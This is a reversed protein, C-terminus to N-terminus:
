FGLAKKMKAHIATNEYIGSFLEAGPGFAFVPVMTATHKDTTFGTVLSDLRSGPNIAFGGTEHDAAVIVLTEGDAEAFDLIKGIVKDFEIMESVIYNADNAHGGWDIQSGEIMLFFPKDSKSRLYNLAASSADIFYDRGQLLPLPEANATFFGFKKSNDIKVKQFDQAIFDSIVYGRENFKEILNRDDKRQDFYKKGGGVFFDVNSSLLDDAIEEMMKRDKQHAYFSAPTAHTISSTVVIGTYFGKEIAEEMITKVPNGNNDVGIANNYTKVGCSMATAGAASDTVLDDSSHTKHLGVHTCRELHLSNGNMYMAASVQTLGMGDGILLVINRPKRFSIEDPAKQNALANPNEGGRPVCAALIFAPFIILLLRLM